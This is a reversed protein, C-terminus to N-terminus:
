LDMRLKITHDTFGMKKYLTLARKNLHSAVVVLRVAGKSKAWNIFKRILETGIRQGRFSSEIFIVGLEGILAHGRFTPENWTSGILLGIAKSDKEVLLVLDDPENIRKTLKEIGEKEHPWDIDLVSDYEEAEKEFLLKQLRQVESFDNISAERIKYEKM